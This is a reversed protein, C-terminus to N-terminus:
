GSISSASDCLSSNLTWVVEEQEREIEKEKDREREGLSFRTTQQPRFSERSLSEGTGGMQKRHKKSKPFDWFFSCLLVIKTTVRERDWKRNWNSRTKLSRDVAKQKKRERRQENNYMETQHMQTTVVILLSSNKFIWTCKWEDSNKKRREKLKNEMRIKTLKNCISILACKKKLKAFFKREQKVSYYYRKVRNQKQEEQITQKNM